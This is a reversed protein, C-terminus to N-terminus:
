KARRKKLNEILEAFFPVQKIYEFNKDENFFSELNKYGTKEYIHAQILLDVKDASRVLKAEITKGQNFEEYLELLEDRLSIPLTSSIDEFAKQEGTDVCKGLYRRAELHIDGILAEGLEHIIAMKIARELNLNQGKEIILKGSIYTILAVGFIHEAVSEPDKVGYYWFGARPTRKLRFVEEFFNLIQHM